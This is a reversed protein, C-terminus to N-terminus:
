CTVLQGFCLPSGTSGGQQPKSPLVGRWAAARGWRGGIGVESSPDWRSSPPNGGETWSDPLRCHPLLPPPFWGEEGRRRVALLPLAGWHPGVKRRRRRRSSCRGVVEGGERINLQVEDDDDEDDVRRWKEGM